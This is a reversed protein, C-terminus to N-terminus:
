SERTSSDFLALGCHFDRRLYLVCHRAGAISDLENGEVDQWPYNVANKLSTTGAKSIWIELKPMWVEPKSIWPDLKFESLQIKKDLLLDLDM